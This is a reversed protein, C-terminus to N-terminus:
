ASCYFLVGDVREVTSASQCQHGLSTVITMTIDMNDLLQHLAHATQRGHNDGPCGWLLRPVWCCVEM